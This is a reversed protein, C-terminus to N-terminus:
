NQNRYNISKAYDDLATGYYYRYMLPWTTFCLLLPPIGDCEKVTAFYSCVTSCWATCSVARPLVQLSIPESVPESSIIFTVFPWTTFRLLLKPIGSCDEFLLSSKPCPVFKLLLHCCWSSMLSGEDVPFSLAPKFVLSRFRRNTAGKQHWLSAAM